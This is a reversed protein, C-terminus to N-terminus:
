SSCSTCKAVYNSQSSLVGEHDLLDVLAALHVPAEDSHDAAGEARRRLYVHVYIYIYITTYVYICIYWTHIHIYIYIYKMHMHIYIYIHM